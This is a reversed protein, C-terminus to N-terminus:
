KVGMAHTNHGKEMLSKSRAIDVLNDLREAEASLVRRGFETLRYYRRREDDLEPDLREDAEEILGVRLMRKISGYLTGPGIQMKSNTMAAVLKMIAYGHQEGDALALMIHFIASTLPLLEEPQPKVNEIM